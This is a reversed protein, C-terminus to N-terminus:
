QSDILKGKVVLRQSSTFLPTCTYLTIIPDKTNDEISIDTPEVVETDFVEYDYEKKNWFVIFKDGKKVKDLSYFTNPGSTYMFRHGTLVTNGGKDPTSTLPRRWIGKDLTSETAGELIKTDVGIDPIVLTNDSPIDKLDKVVASPLSQTALESKYKYGQTSDFKQSIDLFLAPAFPALVLYLGILFVLLLLAGKLTIKFKRKPKDKGKIDKTKPKVRENPKNSRKEKINSVKNKITDFIKLKM